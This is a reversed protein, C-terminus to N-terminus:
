VSQFVVWRKPFAQDLDQFRKASDAAVERGQEQGALQHKRGHSGAYNRQRHDDDPLANETSAHVSQIRKPILAQYRGPRQFTIGFQKIANKAAQCLSLAETGVTRSARAVPGAWSMSPGPTLGLCCRNLAQSEEQRFGRPLSFGEGCAGQAHQSGIGQPHRRRVAYQDNIIRPVALVTMRCRM